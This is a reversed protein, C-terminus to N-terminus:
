NKITNVTKVKQTDTTHTHTHLDVEELVMGFNDYAGQHRCDAVNILAFCETGITKWENFM